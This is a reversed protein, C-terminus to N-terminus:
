EKVCRVSGAKAKNFNSNSFSGEKYYFCYATTASRNAASWVHTRLGVKYYSGGYCDIYGAIPFVHSGYILRNSVSTDWGTASQAWLTKETDRLPVRYTPPCPDYITKGSNEWLDTPDDINWKGDDEDAKYIYETPHQISFDTDVWGNHKSMQVGTLAIPTSGSFASNGPLPDKRGWQYYLGISKPDADGDASTAVVAGLNRDMIYSAGCFDTAAIDTIAGSPMWIHWSWLINGGMDKAAILANGPTLTDPTKLYIEYYDNGSQYDYAVAEIVDTSGVATSTNDTRWLVEVSHIAGVNQLSKGKYAKFKFLKGANTDDGANIIYCNASATASLDEKLTGELGHNHTLSSTTVLHSTIDGVPRYDNRAITLDAKSATYSLKKKRLGDKLLYLDFGSDKAFTVGNPFCIINPTVGDAVVSGSVATLPGSTHSHKYNQESPTIKVTYHSYGLTEDNKGEIEYGDFEGDVIFSMIGCLNYFTFEEKTSDYSAAMLPLNTNGFCSYHYGHDSADDAIAASAPYVAYYGNANAGGDLYSDAPLSVTFTATKGENVINAAELKVVVSKSFYKGHISIEDGVEWTTKGNSNDIAVRTDSPAFNCTITVTPGVEDIIVAGTEEYPEKACSLAVASAIVLISYSLIKKM